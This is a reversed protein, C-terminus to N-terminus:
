VDMRLVGLERMAEFLGKTCHIITSTTLELPSCADEGLCQFSLLGLRWFEVLVCDYVDVQEVSNCRRPFSSNPSRPRSILEHRHNRPLDCNSGGALDVREHRYFCSHKRNCTGESPLSYHSYCCRSWLVVCRSSCM